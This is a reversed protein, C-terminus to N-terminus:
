IGDVLSFVQKNNPHAHTCQKLDSRKCLWSYCQGVADKYCCLIAGFYYVFKWYLVFFSSSAVVAAVAARWVCSMCVCARVCFSMKFPHNQRRLLPNRKKRKAMWGMSYFWICLDWLNLASGLLSRNRLVWIKKRAFDIKNQDVLWSMREIKWSITPTHSPNILYSEFRNSSTSHSRCAASDLFFFFVKHGPFAYFIDSGIKWLKTKNM